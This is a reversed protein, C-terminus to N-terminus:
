CRLPRGERRGHKQYHEFGSTFDGRNVAALVDRNCLLYAGEVFTPARAGYRPRHDSRGHDRGWDRQGRDRHDYRNRDDDRGRSHHDRQRHEYGDDPERYRQAATPGLSGILSLGAVLVIGVAKM